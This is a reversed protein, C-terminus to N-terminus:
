QGFFRGNTYIAYFDTFTVILIPSKIFFKYFDLFFKSLQYQDFFIM